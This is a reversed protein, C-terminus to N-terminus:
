RGCATFTSARLLGGLRDERRTEELGFSEFLATWDSLRRAEISCLARFGSYLVAVLARARRREFEALLVSGGPALHSTLRAVVERLRDGEYLDLVFPLVEVDFTEDPALRELGGVRFDVPSGAPCRTRARDTMARSTDVWVVGEPRRALLTRLIRGTGGGLVLVRDQETVVPLMAEATRRLGDNPFLRAALDYVPALRDFGRAVVADADGARTL